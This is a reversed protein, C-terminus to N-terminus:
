VSPELLVLPIERETRKQYGGYNKHDAVIKPWM